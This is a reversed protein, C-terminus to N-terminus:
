GLFLLVQLEGVLGGIIAGVAILKWEDQKFAPRLIGEFEVPTLQRMKDVITNHVDLADTAYDEVYRVTQPLYEIAKTAATRKLEQFERGGVAFAVIPKAISTQTDITRQVERQILAFLKDSKPGTLVAEMVNRVTLVEDAILGGYDLAVQSRRKQFLGQWRFFLFGKPERPYFIMKLALWDTVFGTIFGFIPMILPEKTL